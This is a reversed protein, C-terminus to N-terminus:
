KLKPRLRTRPWAPLLLALSRFLISVNALLLVQRTWVSEDEMGPAFQQCWISLSIGLRNSSGVCGPADCIEINLCHMNKSLCARIQVHICPVCYTRLYTDLWSYHRLVQIGGGGKGPRLFRASRDKVKDFADVIPRHQGCSLITWPLNQHAM